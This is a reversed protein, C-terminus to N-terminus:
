LVSLRLHKQFLLTAMTETNPKGNNTSLMFAVFCWELQQSTINACILEHEEM